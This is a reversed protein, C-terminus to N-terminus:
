QNREKWERYAAQNIWPMPPCKDRRAGSQTRRRKPTSPEANSGIILLVVIAIIWIMIWFM